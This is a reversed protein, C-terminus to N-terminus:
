WVTGLRGAVEAGVRVSPFDIIEVSRNKRSVKVLECM